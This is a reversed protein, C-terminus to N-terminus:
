LTFTLSNGKKNWRVEALHQILHIGRGSLKFFNEIERPNSLIEPNFGAGQDTVTLVIRQKRPRIKIGVLKQPDFLNGHSMANELAEDLLLRFEFESIDDSILSKKKLLHFYDLADSIVSQASKRDTPITRIFSEAKSKM